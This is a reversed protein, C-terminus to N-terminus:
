QAAELAEIRATLEKIAAVLLPVVDTYRLGLTGQEDQIDVAEPLVAQVDQAILFSRSVDEDDTLYRGTGSRLSCVKEAANEFPVLTTKFREDSQASWSTAGNNLVVGVNSANMVYFFIGASNPGVQWNNTGGNGSVVMRCAATNGSTTGVLLNGSGDISVVQTGSFAESANNSSRWFGLMGAITSEAKIGWVRRDATDTVTGLQIGGINGLGTGANIGGFVASDGASGVVQMKKAPSSTGVGVNGASDVRLREVGGTEVTVTDDAPFRIATNTDGSHVIKDAIILDGSSNVAPTTIGNTGDLVISM